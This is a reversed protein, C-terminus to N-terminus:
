PSLYPHRVVVLGPGLPRVTTTPCESSATGVVIIERDLIGDSTQLLHRERM